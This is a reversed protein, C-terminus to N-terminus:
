GDHDSSKLCNRQLFREVLIPIIVDDIWDRIDRSQSQSHPASITHRKQPTAPNANEQTYQSAMVSDM